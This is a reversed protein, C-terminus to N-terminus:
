RDWETEEWKKEELYLNHMLIRYTISNHYNDIRQRRYKKKMYDSNLRFVSKDYFPRFHSRHDINIWHLKELPFMRNRLKRKLDTMNEGYHGPFM